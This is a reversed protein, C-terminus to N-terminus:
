NKNKLKGLFISVLTEDCLAAFLSIIGAFIIGTFIVMRVDGGIFIISILTLYVFIIQYRIVKM